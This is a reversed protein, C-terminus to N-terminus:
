RLLRLLEALLLVVAGLVVTATATSPLWRRRTADAPAGGAGLLREVAGKRGLWYALAFMTVSLAIKIGLVIAYAATAQPATLRQFTLVVGSVLMVVICLEVADRFHQSVARVLSGAQNGDFGSRLAAGKSQSLAPRLAILYFLGGGVWVVAAM